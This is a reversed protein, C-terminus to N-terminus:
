ARIVDGEVAINDKVFHARVEVSNSATSGSDYPQVDDIYCEFEFFQKLTTAIQPTFSLPTIFM